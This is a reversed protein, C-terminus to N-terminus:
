LDQRLDYALTPQKRSKRAGRRYNGAFESTRIRASIAARELGRM